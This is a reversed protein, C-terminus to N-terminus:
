PNRRTHARIQDAETELQAFLGQWYQEADRSLPAVGMASLRGRPPEDAVPRTAEDVVEAPLGAGVVKSHEDDM